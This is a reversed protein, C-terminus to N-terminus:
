IIKGIEFHNMNFKISRIYPTGEILVFFFKLFVKQTASDAVIYTRPESLRVISLSRLGMKNM